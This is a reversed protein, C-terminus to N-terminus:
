TSEIGCHAVGREAAVCVIGNHEFVASGMPNAPRRWKVVEVIEADAVHIVERL